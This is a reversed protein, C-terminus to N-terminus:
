EVSEPSDTGHETTGTERQAAVRRGSSACRDPGGRIRILAANREPTEVRAPEGSAVNGGMLAIAQEGLRRAARRGIATASSRESSLMSARLARLSRADWAALQRWEPGAAVM